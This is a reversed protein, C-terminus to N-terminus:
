STKTTKKNANGTSNGMGTKVTEEHKKLPDWSEWM